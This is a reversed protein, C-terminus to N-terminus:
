LDDFYCTSFSEAIQTVQVQYKLIQILLSIRAKSFGTPIPKWFYKQQSRTGRGEKKAAKVVSWGRGGADTFMQQDLNETQSLGNHGTLSQESETAVRFRFVSDYVFCLGVQELSCQSRNQGLLELKSNIVMDKRQKCLLLYSRLYGRSNLLDLLARMQQLILLM